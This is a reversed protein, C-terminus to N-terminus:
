RQKFPFPADQGMVSIVLSGSDQLSHRISMTHIDFSYLMKRAYTGKLTRFILVWLM